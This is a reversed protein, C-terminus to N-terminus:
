SVENINLPRPVLTLSRIKGYFNNNRKGLIVNMGSIIPIYNITKSYVLIGDRIYIIKNENLIIAHKSWKQMPVVGLDIETIVVEGLANIFKVIIYLRGKSPNYSLILNDDLNIIPKMLTFSSGWGMNGTNNSLYMELMITIGYGTGDKLLTNRDTIIDTLNIHTEYDGKFQTPNNILAIYDSNTSIYNYKYYTYLGIALLIIIIICYFILNTSFAM